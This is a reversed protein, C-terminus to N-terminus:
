AAGGIGHNAGSCRCECAPGTASTCRAGCEIRDSHKGTIIVGRLYAGCSHKVLYAMRQGSTLNAVEVPAVRPVVQWMDIYTGEPLRTMVKCPKCYARELEPATTTTM